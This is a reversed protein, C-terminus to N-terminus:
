LYLWIGLGTRVSFRSFHYAFGANLWYNGQTTNTGNSSYVSLEPAIGLNASFFSPVPMKERVYKYVEGSRIFTLTDATGFITFGNFDLSNIPDIVFLSSENAETIEQTESPMSPVEPYKAAPEIKNDSALLNGPRTNQTVPTGPTVVEASPLQPSVHRTQVPSSVVPSNLKLSSRSSVILSNQNAASSKEASQAITSKVASQVPVEKGSATTRSMMTSYQGFHSPHLLLWVGQSLFLRWGPYM